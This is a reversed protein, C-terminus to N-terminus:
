AAKGYRFGVWVEAKVPIGEGWLPLEEMLRKVEEVAGLGIARELAMEDYVTLTLHYGADEVKFMSHVLLDRCIAQTINESWMGGYTNVRGKYGKNPDASQYSLTKKKGTPVEYEASTGLYNVQVKMTRVGTEVKPKLYALLGGSPLRCYLFLGHTFWRVRGCDIPKGSEVAEIATRELDHWFRVIHPNAERYRQKLCDLAIAQEKTCQDILPTRKCYLLHSKNAKEREDATMTPTILKVLLNLDLRYTDSFKVGSGIGGQYGSSLINVKGVQRELKDKKTIERGFIASAAPCYIEGDRSFADLVNQQGALWALIVAEISAYDGVYFENGPAPVMHGRVASSFAESVDPYLFSFADYDLSQIADICTPIDVSPRAMNYLNIGRSTWRRTHAGSYVCYDRAVGRSDSLMRMSRYKALSPKNAESYLELVRMTAPPLDTRKRQADLTVATRDKLPGTGNAELWEKVKAGQTPGFFETGNPDNDVLASFEDKVLALHEYILEQTREILPIDLYVGRENMRRDLEWVKQEYDSLHRLFKDLGRTARVDDACYADLKAYDDPANERTWFTGDRRPKALKMMIKKGDMNKQIPLDLAACAKELSAPIGHASAKAMTCRYRSLPIDPYGLPVFFLQWVRREFPVNHCVFIVDPDTAAEYLEYNMEPQRLLTPEGDDIAFQICTIRTSPHELWNAGGVKKIDAESQGECDWTCTKM